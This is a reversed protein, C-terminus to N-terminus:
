CLFMKVFKVDRAIQKKLDEKKEFKKTERVKKLLEIKIRGSFEFDEPADLLFAECTADGTTGAFGAGGEGDDNVGGLGAGGEGDITPSGGINIAANYWDDNLFVRGAFVGEEEGEYLVNLTPFGLSRGVGKGKIVDGEIKEIIKM